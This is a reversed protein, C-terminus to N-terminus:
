NCHFRTLLQCTTNIDSEHYTQPTKTNQLFYVRGQINGIDGYRLDLEKKNGCSESNSIDTALTIYFTLKVAQVMSLTTCDWDRDWYQRSSSPMISFVWKPQVQTPHRVMRAAM